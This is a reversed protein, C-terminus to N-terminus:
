EQEQAPAGGREKRRAFVRSDGAEAFVVARPFRRHIRRLQGGADRDPEYYAPPAGDVVRHMVVISAPRIQGEVVRSWTGGGLFWTPLFALDIGEDGLAYPRVDDGDVETDGVHLWRVGGMEVLFGLNQVPPTRGRGHHLNLVQLELGLDLVVPREGELPLVAEIRELV